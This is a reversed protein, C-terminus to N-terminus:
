LRVFYTSQGLACSPRFMQTNLGSATSWLGISRSRLRTRWPFALAPLLTCTVSPSGPISVCRQLMAYKGPELWSWNGLEFPGCVLRNQSDTFLSCEDAFAAHNCKDTRAIRHLNLYVDVGNASGTEGDTGPEEIQSDDDMCLYTTSMFIRREELRADLIVMTTSKALETESATNVM